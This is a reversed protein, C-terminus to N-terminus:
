RRAASNLSASGIKLKLARLTVTFSRENFSKERVVFILHRGVDCGYHSGTLHLVALVDALAQRSDWRSKGLHQKATVKTLHQHLDARVLRESPFKYRWPPALRSNYTRSSTPPAIQLHQPAVAEPLKRPRRQLYIFSCFSLSTSKLMSQTVDCNATSRSSTM